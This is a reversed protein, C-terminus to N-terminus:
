NPAAAIGPLRTQPCIVEGLVAADDADNDDLTAM